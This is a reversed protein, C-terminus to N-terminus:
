TEQEWDQGVSHEEAGEAGGWGRPLDNARAKVDVRLIKYFFSM